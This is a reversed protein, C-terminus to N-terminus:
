ANLLRSGASSSSSSALFGMMGISDCPAQLQGHRSHLCSNMKHLRLGFEEGSM